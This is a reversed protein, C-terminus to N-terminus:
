SCGFFIEDLWDFFGNTWIADSTTGMCDVADCNTTAGYGCETLKAKLNFTAKFMLFLAEDTMLPNEAYAFGTIAAAANAAWAACDQAMGFPIMTGDFRIRTITFHVCYEDTYAYAGGLNKSFYLGDVCAIWGDGDVQQVFNFSECELRRDHFGSVSAGSSNEPTIESFEIAYSDFVLFVIEEYTLNCVDPSGFVVNEITLSGTSIGYQDEITALTNYCDIKDTICAVDSHGCEWFIQCGGRGMLSALSNFDDSSLSSVFNFDLESLVMNSNLQDKISQPIDERENLVKQLYCPIPCICYGGHANVISNIADIMISQDFVYDPFQGSEDHFGFMIFYLDALQTNDCMKFISKSGTGGAITTNSDNLENIELVNGNKQIAYKNGLKRRVESELSTTQLNNKDLEFLNTVGKTVISENIIESSFNADKPIIYGDNKGHVLFLTTITDNKLIPYINWIGNKNEYRITVESPEGYQEEFTKKKVRTMMDNFCGRYDDIDFEVNVQAIERTQITQPELSELDLDDSQCSNFIIGLLFLASFLKLLKM